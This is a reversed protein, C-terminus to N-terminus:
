IQPMSATVQVGMVAINYDPDALEIDKKEAQLKVKKSTEKMGTGEVGKVDMEDDAGGEVKHKQGRSQNKLGEVTGTKKGKNMPAPKGPIMGWDGLLNNFDEANVEEEEEQEPCPEEIVEWNFGGLEM